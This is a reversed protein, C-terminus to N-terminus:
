EHNPNLAVAKSDNEPQQQPQRNQMSKNVRDRKSNFKKKNNTKTNGSNSNTGMSGILWNRRVLKSVNIDQESLLFQDVGIKWKPEVLHAIMRDEETVNQGVLKYMKNGKYAVKLDNFYKVEKRLSVNCTANALKSKDARIIADWTNAFEHSDMVEYIEGNADCVFNMNEVEHHPYELIKGADGNFLEINKDYYALGSIDILKTLNINPYKYKDLSEWDNLTQETLYKASAHDLMSNVFRGGQPTLVRQYEIITTTSKVEVEEIEEESIIVGEVDRQESGESSKGDARSSKTRENSNIKEGKNEQQENLVVEKEVKVKKFIEQQDEPVNILAAELTDIILEKLM